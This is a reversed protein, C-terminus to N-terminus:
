KNNKKDKIKEVFDPYLDKMCDPCIGHSFLADSHESIYVELQQWFGDDNRINKCNACIPIFGSLTKIKENAIKLEKNAKELELNKQVISDYTSFLLDIVQMRDSTIYLRRGSFYIELGMQPSETNSASRIRLNAIIYDIRSLLYEKEYPKTLFNDAGVELGTIIDHPDSLTTLLIVPIKNFRNDSKIAKCLEFGSMKPMMVDSIIICPKFDNLMELAEEGDKAWKVIFGESQLIFELKVGQTPSDEVMLIKTRQKEEKSIILQNAGMQNNM